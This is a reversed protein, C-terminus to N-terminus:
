RSPKRASQFSPSPRCRFATQPDRGEWVFGGKAAVAKIASPALGSEAILKKTLWVFDGVLGRGRSAGGVRRVACHVSASARREGGSERRPRSLVRGEVRLRRRRDRSLRGGNTTTAISASAPSSGRFARSSLGRWRKSIPRRSSTASATPRRASALRWCGPPSGPGGAGRM